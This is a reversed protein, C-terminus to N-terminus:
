SAIFYIILAVIAIIVFCGTRNQEKNRQYQQFGKDSERIRRKTEPDALFYEFMKEITSDFKTFGDAYLPFKFFLDSESEKSLHANKTIRESMYENEANDQAYYRIKNELIEVSPLRLDDRVKDRFIFAVMDKKDADRIEKTIKLHVTSCRFYIIERLLRNQEERSLFGMHEYFGANNDTMYLCVKALNIAFSSCFYEEDKTM